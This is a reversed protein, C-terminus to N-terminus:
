LFNNRHGGKSLRENGKAEIGSGTATSHIQAIGIFEADDVAGGVDVIILLYVRGFSWM